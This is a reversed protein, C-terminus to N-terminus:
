LHLQTRSNRICRVFNMFCLIIAIQTNEWYTRSVFRNRTFHFEYKNKVIAILATLYWVRMIATGHVMLHKFRLYIAYKANAQRMEHLDINKLSVSFTRNDRCLLWIYAVRHQFVLFFSLTTSHRFNTYPQLLVSFSNSTRKSSNFINSIPAFFPLDFNLLKRLKRQSLRINLQSQFVNIPVKAM